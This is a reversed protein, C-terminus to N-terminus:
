NNKSLDAAILQGHHRTNEIFYKSTVLGGCLVGALYIGAVNTERSDESCQPIKESDDAIKIGSEKLFKLDPQYGTMAFVYDNEIKFTKSDKELIIENERIEVVRTKFYASISGEKIRNIINPRIWYKVRPSIENGRIAMSVDAGVRLLELAVDCASNAAGVVLVKQRYYPHANRFYHMVKPLDEGPINLKRPRDYFGTSLVISKATWIGKSSRITFEGKQGRINEVKNYLSLELDFHEAVRRYYELAEDRTPKDNKSVFPIEGIELLRSTSFFTMNDPFHYLANVLCGKDFLMYSLGKRKLAIGVSLGVPGAGVVAVDIKKTSEERM